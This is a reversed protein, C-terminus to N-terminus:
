TEVAKAQELLQPFIRLEFSNRDNEKRRTSTFFRPDLPKFFSSIVVENLRETGALQQRAHGGVELHGGQAFLFLFLQLQKDGLARCFQLFHHTLELMEAIGDRM